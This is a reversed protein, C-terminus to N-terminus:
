MFWSESFGFSRESIKPLEQKLLQKYATGQILNFVEVEGSTKMFKESQDSKNCMCLSRVKVNSMSTRCTILLPNKFQKLILIEVVGLLM